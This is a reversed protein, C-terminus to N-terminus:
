PRHAAPTAALLDERSLRPIEAVIVIITAAVRTRLVRATIAGRRRGPLVAPALQLPPRDRDPIRRLVLGIHPAERGRALTRLSV